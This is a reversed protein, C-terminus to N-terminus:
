SWRIGGTYADRLSARIGRTGSLWGAFLDVDAVTDCRCAQFCQGSVYCFIRRIGIIGNRALGNRDHQM